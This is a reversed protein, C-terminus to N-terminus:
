SIFNELIDSLEEESDVMIGEKLKEQDIEKLLSIPYDPFVKDLIRQGREDVKFIAINGEKEGIIYHNPCLHNRDERLVIQKNTYSIIKINPYNM